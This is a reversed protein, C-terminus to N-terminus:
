YGEVSPHILKKDIHFSNAIFDYFKMLAKGRDTIMYGNNEEKVTGTVIQEHFRKGFAGFDKVYRDIFLNEMDQESFVRGPEDAMSGLVFVSISREATVPVHTFFVMGVCCFITFILLIDRYTMIRPLWLIKMIFSIFAALLGSVLLLAIGRYFFVDIAGFLPTSFLLVFILSSVAFIIIYVGALLLFERFRM